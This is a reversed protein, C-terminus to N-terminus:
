DWLNMWRPQRRETGFSLGEFLFSCFPNKIGSPLGKCDDYAPYNAGNTGLGHRAWGRRAMGQRVAGLRAM